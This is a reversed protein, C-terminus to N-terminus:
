VAELDGHHRLGGCKRRVYGRSSEFSRTPCVRHVTPLLEPRCSRVPPKYGRQHTHRHAEVLEGRPRPIVVQGPLHRRQIRGLLTMGTQRRIVGLPTLRRPHPDTRAQVPDIAQDDAVRHGGLLHSRQEATTQMRQGLKAPLLQLSRVESWIVELLHDTQTHRELDDITDDAREPELDGPANARDIRRGAQRGVRRQRGRIPRPHPGLHSTLKEEGLM